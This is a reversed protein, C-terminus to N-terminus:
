GTLRAKLRDALETIEALEDSDLRELMRWQMAARPHKAFRERHRQLFDWYLTTFPCAGAGTAKGPDFRCGDCYNSMRSIYRGSAVYPKSALWGGDAYQSM